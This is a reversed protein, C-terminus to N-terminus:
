NRHEVLQRFKGLCHALEFAFQIFTCGLLIPALKLREISGAGRHAIIKIATDEIHM